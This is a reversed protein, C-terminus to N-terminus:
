PRRRPVPCPPTLIVAITKRDLASGIEIAVFDDPNWLRPRDNEGRSELWNPGIIALLEDSAAVKDHLVKVFDRGHPIDDIDVFVRSRGFVQVLKDRLRGATAISDGRRYSIFIVWPTAAKCVIVTNRM